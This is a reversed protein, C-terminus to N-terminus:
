KTLVHKMIPSENVTQIGPVTLPKCFSLGCHINSYNCLVDVDSRWDKTCRLIFTYPKSVEILRKVNSSLRGSVTTM